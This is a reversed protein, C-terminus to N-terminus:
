NKAYFAGTVSAFNGTVDNIIQVDFEGQVGETTIENIKVIGTNDVFKYTDSGLFYAEAVPPEIGSVPSIRALPYSGIDWEVQDDSILANIIFDPDNGFANLDVKYRLTSNVFRDRGKFFAEGEVVEELGADTIKLSFTGLAPVVNLDSDDDDGCAALTITLIFLWNLHKM